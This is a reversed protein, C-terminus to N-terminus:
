KISSIEKKKPLFTKKTFVVFGNSFRELSLGKFRLYPIKPKGNRKNPNRFVDENPVYYFINIFEGDIPKRVKKPARIERSM